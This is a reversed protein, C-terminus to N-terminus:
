FANAFFYDLIKVIGDVFLSILNIIWDPHFAILWILLIVFLIQM